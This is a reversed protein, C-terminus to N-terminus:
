AGRMDSVCADKSLLGRLLAMFKCHLNGLAPAAACPLPWKNRWGSHCASCRCAWHARACRLTLDSQPCFNPHLLVELTFRAACPNMLRIGSLLHM